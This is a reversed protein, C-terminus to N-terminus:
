IQNEVEKSKKKFIKLLVPATAVLVIGIIVFELNKKIWENEGLLYGLTVLSGTWIFSGIINYFTFKKFDMKVIGAVIPAFTRVIPLFRALIIAGGGRKEYFEQAKNLHEKKFLWSDKRTLFFHGSRKGTWYGVFNGLIGAVSILLIWYLLTLISDIPS